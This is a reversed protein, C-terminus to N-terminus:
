RIVFRGFYFFAFGLLINFFINVLGPIYLHSEFLKMTEASFASFTTFSGVFGVSVLQLLHTSSPSIKSQLGILAGSLLCGLINVILTAVPFHSGLFAREGVYFAHRLIAGFFGALGVILYEM